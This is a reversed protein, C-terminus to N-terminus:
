SSLYETPGQGLRVGCKIPSPGLLPEVWPLTIVWGLNLVGIPDCGLLTRKNGRKRKRKKIV